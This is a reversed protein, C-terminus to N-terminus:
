LIGRVTLDKLFNWFSKPTAQGGTLSNWQRTMSRSGGVLIFCQFVGDAEQWFPLLEGGLVLNLAQVPLFGRSLSGEEQFGNHIRSFQQYAEPLFGGLRGRAQALEAESAPLGALWAHIAADPTHYGLRKVPEGVSQEVVLTLSDTILGLRHIFGRAQVLIPSWIENIAEDVDVDAMVARVWTAPLEHRYEEWEPDSRQIHQYERQDM